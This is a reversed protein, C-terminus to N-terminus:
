VVLLIVVIGLPGFVASGGEGGGRVDGGRTSRVAEGDGGSAAEATEPRSVM